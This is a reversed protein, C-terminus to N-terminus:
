LHSVDDASFPNTGGDNGEKLEDREQTVAALEQELYAIRIDQGRVEDADYEHKQRLRENEATLDNVQRVVHEFPTTNQNLVGYRDKLRENEATLSAVYGDVTRWHEVDARLAANEAEAKLCRAEWERVHSDVNVNQCMMEVTGMTKLRENESTLRKIEEDAAHYGIDYDFNIRKLRANEAKLEEMERLLKHDGATRLSAIEQWKACDARLAADTDLWDQLSPGSVGHYGEGGQSSICVALMEVQERTLEM